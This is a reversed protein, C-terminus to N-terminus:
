EEEKGVIYDLNERAMDVFEHIVDIPIPMTFELIVSEDKTVSGYTIWIGIKKAETPCPYRGRWEICETLYDLETHYRKSEVALGADSFLKSIKHGNLVSDLKDEELSKGGVLLKKVIAGKLYNELAFGILMYYIHGISPDILREHEVDRESELKYAVRLLEEATDRWSSPNSKLYNYTRRMSLGQKKVAKDNM